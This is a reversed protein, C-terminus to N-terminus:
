AGAPLDGALLRAMDRIGEVAECAAHELRGARVGLRETAGPDVERRLEGLDAGYGLAHALCDAVHVLDALLPEDGGTARGPEHHWRAAVGIAAPLGWREALVLGVEAHDTGLVAQEVDVFAATGDRMKDRVRAQEELLFAGIALKGLDHLLGATFALAPVGHGLDRGLREALAGVAVCHTWFAVAEIGYGPVVPPIVRAFSAGVAVEFVRRVGLMAVAQGVSGIERRCGFHASNALRLLNATLAPDPRIVAEFDAAGAREDGILAALRAVSGPLTPLNRVRAAILDTAIV